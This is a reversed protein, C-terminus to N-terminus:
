QEEEGEIDFRFRASKDSEDKFMGELRALTELAKVRDIVEYERVEFERQDEGKGSLERRTKVKRLFRTDMGSRRLDGLSKGRSLGEFDAIDCGFAMERIAMSVQGRTLGADSMCDKVAELIDPKAMNESGINKASIASYGARKAAKTANYCRVYEMVFRKQRPELRDFAKAPRVPVAKPKEAGGKKKRMGKPKKM